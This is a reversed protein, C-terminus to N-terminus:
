RRHSEREHVPPLQRGWQSGTRAPERQGSLRRPWPPTSPPLGAGTEPLPPFLHPTSPPYLNARRALPEETRIGVLRRQRFPLTLAPRILYRPITTTEALSIHQWLRRQPGPAWWNLNGLLHMTAPVLLMRILTADMIVAIALGVGIEQIFIIRASGFAGLVIALLLAASTILWGTRQIGSSIAQQNDGTEDYREKIRSLLFVEYDMSLGFAVAFILVPQTADISGVSQFHLLSQLHGDQFIWVLGGFTASLSLINLIIAKLPVILSGTMFFLLVFISLVIVLLAAPLHAGLSALLDIQEPTIGDVLPVLGGPARLARIRRVLAIAAASHDVPRLEVTVKTVNGNALSLASQALQVSRVPSAYAQQYEALTLDPSISVLSEVHEVGPMAEISKVYRDLSALNGASLPSGPTTVAINLQANGAQAFNQSLQESVVRAVQGPPLVKEDPTAFTIHLFPWGLTALLALVALAVPIPWRMVTESLRYWANRQESSFRPRTRHRPFLRRLSLANVRWGLIALIAPLLTLATLMVVLIAAIAGLGMSRLFTVPFFLLSLLSTGVTLASFIVTRGATAMTRELAGRVDRPDRALEERFRTVIFLAYDIALGLGLMTVVNIAFVSVDTFMAILRLVAFGGLIAVSGILLPLGAAIVGGFVLLLLVALIPFTITEAHELDASVQQSVAMSVPITGGMSVRVVRATLLPELTRYEDEKTTSDQSSLQLLAFTEHQDRSLFSANHTSYYSTLSAVEPRNKLSALLNTAAQAFAPDTARLTSSRMLIIVDALSGGLRTDLLQRALTSESAPNDYGENKLLGFVGFGFSAAGLLLVPMTLLVLWRARYLLGGLRLLM